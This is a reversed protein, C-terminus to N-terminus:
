KTRTTFYGTVGGVKLYTKTYGLHATNSAHRVQLTQSATTGGAVPALSGNSRTWAGSGIRYELDPGAVVPVTTNFGSLTIAASTLTVGPEQASLSGFSFADPVRDLTTTISRFITTYDGVQVTTETATNEVKSSIHRVVLTSGAAIQGRQNTFSGGDISYQAGDLVQVPLLGTYGSLTVAESTVFSNTPVNQREIFKFPNVAQAVESVEIVKEAVNSSLADNIDTVTLKAPYVGRGTYTHSVTVSALGGFSQGNLLQGDGFSLNYTSLADGDADSGTVTFSVTLPTTGTQKDAVLDALPATNLACAKNDAVTFSNAASRTLGTPMEDVSQAVSGAPTSVQAVVAGNFGSIAQGAATVGVDAPKVAIIIEGLPTYAGKAVAKESGALAYSGDAVTGGPATTAIYSGFTAVSQANTQMHVGHVKGDPANFSAFWTTSPPLSSLDAIKLRFVLLQNGDQAFPRSVALSQIDQNAQKSTADTAPDTLQYVGPLSCPSGNLLTGALPLGVTNSTDGEGNSSLATVRYFYPSVAPDASTDNYAAKADTTAILKETGSTTRRYVKYGTIPQGGDSPVRWTLHSGTDNRTGALCSAVPAATPSPDFAALLTRGASQRSIRAVRTFTVAGGTLCTGTCGQAYGFLVRGKEDRTIENFDLLNRNSGCSSGATCIGGERQVPATPAVNVTHWTLGGDYTTAVYPYWVGQFDAASHNGGRDTGLFACAARKSDGAIAEPFVAIKVGKSAGIDYDNTWTVGRDKSVQVHPRGDGNLYCFYATNDTAIGVSPDSDGPTTNPVKRVKWTTGADTSVAACQQLGCARNPVYVTGDPAVRAHGHLGGFGDTVANYIPVGSPFTLGGDDSRSCFASTGAQSCYYVASGGNSANGLPVSAPYPGSGVTQHDYGGEPPGFQGQTWNKGDDDTYAFLSNAGANAPGAVIASIMQSVFTRGTTSDTFLIPDFSVATGQYSVNEWLADCSAPLSPELNEPLTVRLDQTGSLFMVKKTRPNYGISPEGASTGLAGTPLYVYYQPAVGSAAPPLPTNVSALLDITGKFSGGAVLFPSGELRYTGSVPPLYAIEPDSATGAQAIVKNATDYITYDYDEAANPWLWTIRVLDDPHQAAYGAPLNVTLTYEDCPFVPDLCTTGSRANNYYFPGANYVVPGSTATLTGTAPTAAQAADLGMLLAPVCLLVRLARILNIRM